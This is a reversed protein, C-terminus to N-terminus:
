DKKSDDKKKEPKKEKTIYGVFVGIIVLLIISGIVSSDWYRAILKWGINLWSEGNDTKVANLFILIIAFFFVGITGNRIRVMSKDEFIKDKDSFMTGALLLFAFISILLIVVHGLGENIISVLKSSAIGIFGISFAVMANLNKRTETKKDGLDIVGLVKSKELMAFTVTFILLFPIVVDYMGIEHFFDIIGRFTSAM